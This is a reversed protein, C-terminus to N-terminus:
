GTIVYSALLSIFINNSVSSFAETKLKCCSLTVIISHSFVCLFGMIFNCIHVDEVKEFHSFVCPFEMIFNNWIHVHEVKEFHM